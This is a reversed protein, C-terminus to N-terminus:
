ARIYDVLVWTTKRLRGAIVKAMSLTLEAGLAPKDKILQDYKERKLVLLTTDDLVVATGSRPGGDILSVEGFTGGRSVTTLVQKGGKRGKKSIQVRGKSVIALYTDPGGEEFLTVGPPIQYVEFYSALTDLQRWHYERLWGSADLLEQIAQPSQIVRYSRLSEPVGQDSM